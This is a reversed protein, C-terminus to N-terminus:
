FLESVIKEGVLYAGNFNLHDDDQYLYTSGTKLSCNDQDCFTQIPDIVLM